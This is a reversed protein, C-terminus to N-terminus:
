PRQSGHRDHWLYSEKLLLPYKNISVVESLSSSSKLYNRLGAAWAPGIARVVDDGDVRPMRCARGLSGPLRDVAVKKFALIPVPPSGPEPLQFGLLLFDM